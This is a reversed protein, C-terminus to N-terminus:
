RRVQCGSLCFPESGGPLLRRLLDFLRDAARGTQDPGTLYRGVSPPRPVARVETASGSSSSDTSECPHDVRHRGLFRRERLDVAHEPRSASQLDGVREDMLLHRPHAWACRGRPRSFQRRQGPPHARARTACRPYMSMAVAVQRVGIGARRELCGGLAPRAFGGCDRRNRHPRPSQIQVLSRESGLRVRARRSV